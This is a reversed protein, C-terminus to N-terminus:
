RGCEVGNRNPAVNIVYGRGRPAPAQDRSRERNIVILQQYGALAECRLWLACGCTTLWGTEKSM